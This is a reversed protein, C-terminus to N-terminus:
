PVQLTQGTEVNYPYPIHNADILKQMQNGDGYIKEAIKWLFDGEVVTYQSVHQTHAANGTIDGQTPAKPKISPLILIQDKTLIYPEEIGNKQAIDVANLGSGYTKEAIHWLDEGEQVRYIKVTDIAYQATHTKKPKQTLSFPIIRIVTLSILVAIGCGALFFPFKEKVLLRTMEQYDLSGSYVNKM